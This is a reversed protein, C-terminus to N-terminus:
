TAGFGYLYTYLFYKGGPSFSFRSAGTTVSTAWVQKNTGTKTLNLLVVTEVGSNLYHYVFRDDDPSFGWTSGGPLTSSYVTASTAVNKITVQPATGPGAATLKYKGHPSTGDSAVAPATSAPAKYAGVTTCGCEAAVARATPLVALAALLSILVTRFRTLTSGSMRHRGAM